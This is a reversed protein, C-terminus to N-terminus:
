KGKEVKRSFFQFFFVCVCFFCFFFCCCVVVVVVVVFFFVVFCFFFFFMMTKFHFVQDCAHEIFENEPIYAANVRLTDLTNAM